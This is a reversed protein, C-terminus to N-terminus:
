LLSAPDTRVDRAVFRGKFVAGPEANPTLTPTGPYVRTELSLRARGHRALSRHFRMVAEPDPIACVAFFDREIANPYEIEGSQIVVVGMLGADQLLLEVLGWAAVVAVGYSSGGFVTNQHNHNPELPASVLLSQGDYAELRVSLARTLPIMENLRNQFRALQTM